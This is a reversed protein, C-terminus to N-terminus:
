PVRSVLRNNGANLPKTAGDLLVAQAEVGAPIEADLVFQGDKISWDSVIRGVPSDFVARAHTLPGPQPAILIKKWGVSGPEQRIGAVYAFHWELLHGLMMHNLSNGTGPKADWSEPLTTLGSKVMYGYSGPAERAYVKHLVDGRGAEALARILFVHLVEGTTQQYERKELDAVIAAVAAARDAPPILDICLAAATGAQCSGNNIVTHTAPDYFRRQFDGRIQEYMTRYKSARGGGASEAASGLVDLADATTRAALAWIATASVENPTWQSPGDGKGHGFDYWDGLNSKIVGDQAQSALYDTFRQMADINLRLADRDGYWEYMHWPLLVAAVGWEPAENWYGHPPIGVLYNPCNTPVHGDPLQTDRIDHTIKALWALDDFRYSVARAMHWNQEQWGNKERHPCDTAVHSMNSRISWDILRDIANQLDSNCTFEGVERNAARVSVMEIKKLVPKGGPNAAQDPVAGTVEVFQAGVYCFMIQHSEPGGGRLTYDHWIDKKTGWTYTFKVRGDADKYECPKFRVTAGAPGEVTFRLLSSCNQPFVYTHVGPGPNAINAPAFAEFAKISPGPLPSLKAAPAAVIKAAKWNSADFGPTDWGPIERRADYDEGAYIHSFTLPGDTWRWQDDTTIRLHQDHRTAIEANVMLLYPRGASYDPMADTKSFRGADNVPGVSWFSNGLLVGIVNEGPQLLAAIDFEQTYIAKDYQSWAQNILTDGVPRGNIRLEYHGLGVIQLKAHPPLEDLKFSRRLLPCPRAAAVQTTPGTTPTTSTASTAIDDTPAIWTVPLQAQAVAAGAFILLTVLSNRQM